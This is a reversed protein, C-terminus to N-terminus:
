DDQLESPLTIAVDDSITIEEGDGFGEDLEAMEVGKDINSDTAEMTDGLQSYLYEM